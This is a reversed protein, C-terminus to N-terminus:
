PTATRRMWFAGAAVRNCLRHALRVNEPVLRGGDKRAIPYHDATPIWEPLPHIEQFYGRGGFQEPYLCEEMACLLEKIYGLDAARLLAHGSSSTNHVGYARLQDSVSGDVPENDSASCIETWSPPCRPGWM